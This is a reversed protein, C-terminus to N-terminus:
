CPTAVSVVFGVRRFTREAFLHPLSDAIKKISTYLSLAREIWREVLLMTLYSDNGANHVMSSKLELGEKIRLFNDTLNALGPMSDLHRWAIQTDILEGLSRQFGFDWEKYM